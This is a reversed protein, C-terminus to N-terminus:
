GALSGSPVAAQGQASRSSGSARTRSPLSRLIRSQPRTIAPLPAVRMCGPYLNDELMVALPELAGSMIGPLAKGVRALIQLEASNVSSEIRHLIRNEEDPGLGSMIQRCRESALWNKMWGFFKVLQPKKIEINNAEIYHVANRIWISAAQDAALLGKQAEQVSVKIGDYGYTTNDDLGLTSSLVGLFSSGTMFDADLNWDLRNVKDQVFAQNEEERADSIARLNLVLESSRGSCVMRMRRFYGAMERPCKRATLKLRCRGWSATARPAQSKPVSRWCRSRPQYAHPMASSNRSCFQTSSTSLMWRLQIFSMHGSPGTRCGLALTPIAYRSCAECVVTSPLYSQPSHVRYDNGTLRAFEYFETQTMDTDCGQRATELFRMAEEERLKGERTGEVDDSEDTEHEVTIEGSCHESWSGDAANYSQIRFSEWRSGKYQNAASMSLQVEVESSSGDEPENLVISKSISVDRFIFKAIPQDPQRMQALQKMAEIAMTLYGAGPYITFGDVVHDRLWPLADLNLFYRWRPEHITSAPDM